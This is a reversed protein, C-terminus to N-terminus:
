YVMVHRGENKMRSPGLGSQLIAVSSMWNRTSPGRFTIARATRMMYALAM